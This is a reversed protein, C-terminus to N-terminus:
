QTKSVLVRMSVLPHESLIRRAAVTLPREEDPAVAPRKVRVERGGFLLARADADLRSLLPSVEDSVEELMAARSAPYEAVLSPEPVGLRVTVFYEATNLVAPEIPGSPQLMAFQRGKRYACRRPSFSIGGASADSASLLGSHLITAPYLFQAESRPDLLAVHVETRVTGLRRLETRDTGFVTITTDGVSAGDEAELEMAPTLGNAMRRQLAKYFDVKAVDFPEAIRKMRSLYETAAAFLPSSDKLRVVLSAEVNLGLIARKTWNHSGVWLEATGDKSWFACSAARTLLIRNLIIAHPTRDEFLRTSAAGM